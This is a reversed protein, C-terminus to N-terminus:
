RAVFPVATLAPKNKHVVMDAAVDTWLVDNVLMRAPRFVPIFTTYVQPVTTWEGDCNKVSQYYVNSQPISDWGPPIYNYTRRLDFKLKRLVVADAGNKRANHVLARYIFNYGRPSEMVFRGITKHSWAPPESLVPVVAKKPLPVYSVTGTPTYYVETSSMSQCGALVAACLLLFLGRTM